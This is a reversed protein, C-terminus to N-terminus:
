LNPCASFKFFCTGSAARDSVMQSIGNAMERGIFCFSGDLSIVIGQFRHGGSVASGIVLFGRNKM